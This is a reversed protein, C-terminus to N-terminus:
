GPPGQSEVLSLWLCLGGCGVRSDALIVSASFLLELACLVPCHNLCHQQQEQGYFGALLFLCSITFSFFACTEKCFWAFSFLGRQPQETVGDRAVRPTHEFECGDPQHHRGVM